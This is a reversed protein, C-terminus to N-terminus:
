TFIVVVRENGWRQIPPAENEAEAWAISEMKLGIECNVRIPDYVSDIAHASAL